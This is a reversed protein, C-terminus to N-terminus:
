AERARVRERLRKALEKVVGVEKASFSRVENIYEKQILLERYGEDTLKYDGQGLFIIWKKDRMNQLTKQITAEMHQPHKKHGSLILLQYIEEYNKRMIQARTFSRDKETICPDILYWAVFEWDSKGGFLKAM